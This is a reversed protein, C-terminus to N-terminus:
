NVEDRIMGGYTVLIEEDPIDTRYFLEMVKTALTKTRNVVTVSIFDGQKFYYDEGHDFSDYIEDQYTNTYYTDYDNLFVGTNEDYLPVVVKHSHVIEIKYLNNTNDIKKIYDLYMNRSLFGSNKVSDVLKTTENSVYNQSIADQKQAMYLLPGIFMIIAALLFAIIKSFSNM